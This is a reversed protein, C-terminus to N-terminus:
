NPAKEVVLNIREESLDTVTQTRGSPWKIDVKAVPDDPEFGIWVLDSNQAVNGEGSQRHLLQTRGSQYTAYVRAGIADRNSTTHDASSSEHSGQLKIRYRRNDSVDGLQNRLLKLRPKNTSVLAIDLWGDEDLDVRAFCRGDGKHDADSVLTMNWYRQGDNLFLHNPESGSFSNCKYFPPGNDLKEFLFNSYKQNKWAEAGLMAASRTPDSRM